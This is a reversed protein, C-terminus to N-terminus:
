SFCMGELFGLPNAPIWSKMQSKLGTGNSIDIACVLYYLSMKQESLRYLLHFICNKGLSFFLTTTFHDLLTLCRFLGGVAALFLYLAQPKRIGCNLVLFCYWLKLLNGEWIQIKFPLVYLHMRQRTVELFFVSINDPFLVNQRASFNWYSSPELQKGM